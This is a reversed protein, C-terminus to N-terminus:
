WKGSEIEEPTLVKKPAEIGQSREASQKRIAAVREELSVDDVTPAVKNDQAFYFILTVFVLSVFYFPKARATCLYRVFFSKTFPTIM